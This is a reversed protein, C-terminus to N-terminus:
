FDFLDISPGTEGNIYKEIQSILLYELDVFRCGNYYILYFKIDSILKDKIKEDLNKIIYNKGDITLSYTTAAQM